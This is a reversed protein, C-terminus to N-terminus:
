GGGLGEERARVIAAARYFVQMMQEVGLNRDDDAYGLDDELNGQPDLDIVLVRGGFEAIAAAIAERRDGIERAGPAATRGQGATAVRM